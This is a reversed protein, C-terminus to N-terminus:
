LWRFLATALLSLLVVSGFPFRLERGGVRVSIDGPLRTLGLWATLRPLYLGAVVVTIVLTMIWKM